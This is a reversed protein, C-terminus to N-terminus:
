RILRYIINDYCYNRDGEGGGGELGNLLIERDSLNVVREGEGRREREGERGSEGERVSERDREREGERWEGESGGEKGIGEEKERRGGDGLRYLLSFGM